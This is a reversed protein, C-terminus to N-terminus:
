ITLLNPFAICRGWEGTTRSRDADITRPMPASNTGEKKKRRHDAVLKKKRERIATLTAAEEATLHEDDDMNAAVHAEHEAALAEEERELAELKADIDPDIFDM